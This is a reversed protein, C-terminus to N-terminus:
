LLSLLKEPQNAFEELPIEKRTLALLTNTLLENVPTSIGLRKGERVVAGNLYEVESKGRGAYLDIHFSPMKNGRKGGAVRSVMPKSLWLPLTTAFVLARV